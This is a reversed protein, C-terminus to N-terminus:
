GDSWDASVGGQRRAPLGSIHASAMSRAAEDNPSDQQRLRLRGLPLPARSLAWKELPVWRTAEMTRGTVSDRARMADKPAGLRHVIATSTSASRPINSSFGPTM